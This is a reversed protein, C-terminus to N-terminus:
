KALDDFGSNGISLLWSILLKKKIHLRQKIDENLDVESRDSAMTWKGCTM